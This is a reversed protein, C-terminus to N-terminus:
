TRAKFIEQSESAMASNGRSSKGINVRWALGHRRSSHAEHRREAVDVVRGYV